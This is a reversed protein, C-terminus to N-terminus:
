RESLLGMEGARWAFRHCTPRGNLWAQNGGPAPVELREVSTGGCASYFAQAATNQDLVTLHLGSSPSSRVVEQAVRALLRTGIGQRKVAYRVHLNDVFAGWTPHDDLFTHAIGVLEGDYEALITRAEPPPAALRETWLRGLYEAVENDLFADTYAGRYHRQWSDAHLGAVAPADEPRAARFRPGSSTERLV